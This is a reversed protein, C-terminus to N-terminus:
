SLSPWLISRTSLSVCWCLSAHLFLRCYLTTKLIMRKRDNRREDKREQANEQANSGKEEREKVQIKSVKRHKM